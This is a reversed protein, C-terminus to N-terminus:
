KALLREVTHRCHSSSQDIGVAVRGANRAAVLTSGSGCYPDLIPGQTMAVLRAVAELPRAHPHGWEARPAFSDDIETWAQLPDAKPIKVWGDPRNTIIIAIGDARLLRWLNHEHMWAIASWGGNMGVPPDTIIAGFSEDPLFATSNGRYVAIKQELLLTNSTIMSHDEEWRVSSVQSMGCM